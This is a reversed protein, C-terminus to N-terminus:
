AESSYSTPPAERLGPVVSRLFDRAVVMWILLPLGDMLFMLPFLRSVYGNGAAFAANLLTIMVLHSLTILAGGALAGLIRRRASLCPTVLVLVLFPLYSTFRISLGGTGKGTFHWGFADHLPRLIAFLFSVYRVLGWELWLWSLPISLGFFLLLLLLLRRLPVAQGGSSAVEAASPDRLELEADEV